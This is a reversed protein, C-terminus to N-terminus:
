IDRGIGYRAERIAVSIGTSAIAAVTDLVVKGDKALGAIGERIAIVVDAKAGQDGQARKITAGGTDFTIGLKHGTLREFKPGLDEMVTQMGNACLVKVEAAHAARMFVLVSLLCVAAFVRSNLVM